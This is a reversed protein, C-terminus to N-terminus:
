RPAPRPRGPARCRRATRPWGSWTARAIRCAPDPPRPPWGCRSPRTPRAASRRAPSCWRATRSSWTAPSRAARRRDPAGAAAARGSRLRDAARLADDLAYRGHPRRRRGPAAARRRRRAGLLRPSRTANRPSAAPRGPPRRQRAARRPRGAPATPPASRRACRTPSAPARRDGRLVGSTACGAARGGQPRGRAPLGARRPGALPRQHAGAARAAPPRRHAAVPRRRSRILADTLAPDGAVHRADLLGLAAKLRGPGGLAGRRRHPGLPRARARRGLDPVLDAAALEDIGPVGAHLLVLDLDGHPACERRGSGASPSWRSARRRSRCCGACGPTSRRPARGRPPASRRDARRPSASSRTSRSTRRRRRRRPGSANTEILSTM